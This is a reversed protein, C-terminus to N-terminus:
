TYVKLSRYKEKYRWQQIELLIIIVCYYVTKDFIGFFLEQQWHVPMKLILNWKAGWAPLKRIDSAQISM